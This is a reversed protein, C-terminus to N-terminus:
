AAGRELYEVAAILFARSDRFHGLGLNCRTCLYGRIEGSEHNHDLVFKDADERCIACVGGQDTLIAAREDSSLGWKRRLRGEREMQRRRDGHRAMYRAKYERKKEPTQPTARARKCAKCYVDRGDHRARNRYFASHPLTEECDPCTKTEEPDAFADRRWGAAVLAKAAEDKGAGAMGALGILRTV